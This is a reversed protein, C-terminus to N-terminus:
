NDVTSLFSTQGNNFCSVDYGDVLAIPNVKIIAGDNLKKCYRSLTSSDETIIYDISNKDAQAILKIDDAYKPNDSGRRRQIGGMQFAVDATRIADDVNYPLIRFNGCGIVSSIPQGQSFEAIVITSLYLTISNNLFYKYYKKAIDHNPRDDSFLTILFSTDILVSKHTSSSM